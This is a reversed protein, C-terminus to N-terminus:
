RRATGSRAGRGRWGCRGLLSVQRGVWCRTVPEGGLVEGQGVVLELDGAVQRDVIGCPCIVQMTPALAQPLDVSSRARARSSLGSGPHHEEVALADVPQGGLLDGGPEPDQGLRRDCRFADGDGVEDGAAAVRVLLPEPLPRRRVLRDDGVGHAGGADDRQRFSGDVLEGAPLALPHPDRHRQRLARVQHQEVLRGGVEVEGVLDLHEVQEDVEVLAVLAGDHEHQVVEVLGGAVAVVEDRHAVAVDDGGPRGDVTIVSSSTCSTNPSRQWTTVSSTEPM